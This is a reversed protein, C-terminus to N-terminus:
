TILDLLVRLRILKALIDGRLMIIVQSAFTYGRGWWMDTEKVLEGLHGVELWEIILCLLYSYGIVFGIDWYTSQQSCFLPAKQLIVPFLVEVAQSLVLRPRHNRTDELIM